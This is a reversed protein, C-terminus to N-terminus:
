SEGPGQRQRKRVVRSVKRSLLEEPNHKVDMPPREKFIELYSKLDASLNRDKISCKFCSGVVQLKYFSHM